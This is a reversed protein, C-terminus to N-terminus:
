IPSEEHLYGVRHCAHLMGNETMKASALGDFHGFRMHM